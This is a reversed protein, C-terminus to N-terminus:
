AHRAMPWDSVAFIIAGDRGEVPEGRVPFQEM